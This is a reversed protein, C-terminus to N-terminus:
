CFHWRTRKFAKLHPIREEHSYRLLGLWPLVEFELGSSTVFDHLNSESSISKALLLDSRSESFESYARLAQPSMSFYMDNFMGKKESMKFEGDLYVFDPNSVLIPVKSQETREFIYPCTVLRRATFYSIKCYSLADPGLQNLIHALMKLEGVGKNKLGLNQDILHFETDLPTVDGLVGLLEEHSSLTNEGVILKWDAPLVRSLQLFSARYEGLRASRDLGVNISAFAIILFRPSADSVKVM